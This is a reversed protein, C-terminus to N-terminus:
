EIIKGVIFQRAAEFGGDAYIAAIVAELSGALNTANERGLTKEEGKGLFLYQGLAIAKAKKCLSERNVILSRLRTLEGEPLDPHNGYLHGAVVMGLISDGLFELRNNDLTGKDKSEYAFSSHTLAQRLLAADKFHYGLTEQLSSLDAVTAM